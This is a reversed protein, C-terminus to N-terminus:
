VGRWVPRWQAWEQRRAEARIAEIRVWVADEIKWQWVNTVAVLFRQDTRALEEVRDIFAPGHHALFNELTGAGILGLVANSKARSVGELILSWAAEPDAAPELFNMAMCAAITSEDRHGSELGALWSVIFGERDM